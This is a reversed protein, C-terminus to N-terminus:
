QNPQTMVANFDAPMFEMIIPEQGETVLTVTVPIADKVSMEILRNWHEGYNPLTNIWQSKLMAANARMMPFYQAMEGTIEINIGLMNDSLKFSNVNWGDQYEIPCDQNMEMVLNQLAESPSAFCIGIVMSLLTSIIVKKM